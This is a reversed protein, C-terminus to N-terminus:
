NTNITRTIAELRKLLLDKRKGPAYLLGEAVVIRGRVTDAVAYSVFPGGIADGEMQWLGSLKLKRRGGITLVSYSVTQRVTMVYMSDTAGKLHRQMVSDRKAVMEKPDLQSGEYSYICINRQRRADGNSLWLFGEERKAVQMDAPQEMSVGQLWDDAATALQSQAGDTCAGLLLGLLVGWGSRM